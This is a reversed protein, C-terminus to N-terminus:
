YIYTSYYNFYFADGVVFFSLLSWFFFNFFLKYTINENISKNNM